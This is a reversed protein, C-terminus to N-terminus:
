YKVILWDLSYNVVFQKPKGLAISQLYDICVQRVSAPYQSMKTQAIFDLVLSHSPHDFGERFCETLDIQIDSPSQLTYAVNMEDLVSTVSSTFHYPRKM